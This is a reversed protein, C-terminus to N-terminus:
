YDLGLRTQQAVPRPAVLEREPYNYGERTLYADVLAAVLSSVSRNDDFAARRLQEQMGAPLSVSMNTAHRLHTKMTFLNEGIGAPHL